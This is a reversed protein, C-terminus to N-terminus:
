PEDSMASPSGLNLKCSADPRPLVVVVVPLRASTDALVNVRWGLRREEGAGCWRYERCSLFGAPCRARGAFPM